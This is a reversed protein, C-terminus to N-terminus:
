GSITAPARAQRAPAPSTRRRWWRDRARLLWRSMTDGPVWALYAAYLTATFFGVLVAGEIFLHLILGLGLVWPRTRRHWVLTALSVEIALTGYTLLNSVVLSNTVLRPAM